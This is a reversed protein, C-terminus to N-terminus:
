YRIGNKDAVYFFSSLNVSKMNTCNDFKRNTAKAKYDPYFRSVRHFYDRGNEGFANYLAGAVKIWDQYNSTIDISNQEILGIIAEVKDTDTKSVVGSNSAKIKRKKPISFAKANKNYYANKDVSFFRLRTYDKCSADINIGVRQLRKKFHKFAKKLPTGKKLKIVAYLGDKIEKGDSSVSYGVYYCSPFSSFLEKAKEFDLCLNCPATKSKAFRDIDLVIFPNKKKIHKLNRVKKFTASITVCPIQSKLNKSQLKRYKSVKGKLDAPPNITNLLWEDLDFDKPKTDKVDKFYSIKM